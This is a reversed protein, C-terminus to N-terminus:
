RRVVYPHLTLRLDRRLRAPLQGERDIAWTLLTGQYVAYLLPALKAGAPAIEGAAVAVDLLSAIQERMATGFRAAHRRFDPDALDLALFALHNSVESPESVSGGLAVLANELAAVAPRRTRAEAFAEAVMGAGAAAVALLLERKSGFREVLTAPAVGARAGVDALTLRGPGKSAIVRTAAEIVERDSVKRPRAV